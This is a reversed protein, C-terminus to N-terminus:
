SRSKGDRRCIPTPSIAAPWFGCGSRRSISRASTPSSRRGDNARRRTPLFFAMTWSSSDLPIKTTTAAAEVLPVAASANSCIGAARTRRTPNPRDVFDGLRAFCDRRQRNYGTDVTMLNTFSRVFLGAGVVLV